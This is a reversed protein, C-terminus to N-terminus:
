ILVSCILRYVNSSSFLFVCSFLSAIALRKKINIKAYLVCFM